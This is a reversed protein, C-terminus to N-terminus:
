LDGQSHCSGRVNVTNIVLKMCLVLFHCEKFNILHLLHKCHQLSLETKGRKKSIGKARKDKNDCIFAYM